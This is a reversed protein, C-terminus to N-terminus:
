RIFGTKINEYAEEIQKIWSKLMPIRMSTFEPYMSRRAITISKNTLEYLEDSIKQAYFWRGCTTNEFIGWPCYHCGALQKDKINDVFTCLVCNDMSSRKSEYLDLLEVCASRMELLQDRDFAHLGVSKPHNPLSMTVGEEIRQSVKAGNQWLGQLCDARPRM